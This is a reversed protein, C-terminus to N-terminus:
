AKKQVAAGGDMPKQNAYRNFAPLLDQPKPGWRSQALERIKKDRLQQMARESHDLRCGDKTCEGKYFKYWCPNIEGRTGGPNPANLANLEEEGVGSMAIDMDEVREFVVEQEEEDDEGFDHQSMQAITEDIDGISDEDEHGDTIMHMSDRRLLHRPKNKDFLRPRDKLINPNKAADPGRDHKESRRKLMANVDDYQQKLRTYPEIKELFLDTFEELSKAVRLAPTVVSLRSYLINGSDNPWAGLYYDILGLTKGEKYMPPIFDPDCTETILETTRRFMHTFYTAANLLETINSADPHFADEKGQVRFKVRKIKQIYDEPSKAKVHEYICQQLQQDSLM